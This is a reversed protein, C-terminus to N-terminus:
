CRIRVRILTSVIFKFINELCNCLGYTLVEEPSSGVFKRRNKSLSESIMRRVGPLSRSKVIQDQCTGVLKKPLSRDKEALEAFEWRIKPSGDFERVRLLDKASSESVKNRKIDENNDYNIRCM